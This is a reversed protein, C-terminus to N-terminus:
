LVRRNELKTRVALRHLIKTRAQEDKRVGYGHVLFAIDPRGVSVGFIALAHLDGLEARIALDQHREALGPLTRAAGGQVCEVLRGIDGDRAIAVNENGFPVSRFEAIGADQLEVLVSLNM